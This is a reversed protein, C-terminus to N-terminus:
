NLIWQLLQEQRQLEGIESMYEHQKGYQGKTMARSLEKTCKNIKDKINNITQEIDERTKM